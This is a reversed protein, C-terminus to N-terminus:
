TSTGRLRSDTSQPFYRYMSTDEKKPDSPLMSMPTVRQRVEPAPAPLNPVLSYLAEIAARFRLELQRDAEEMEDRDATSTGALPYESAATPPFALSASPMSQSGSAQEAQHSQSVAKKGRKYVPSETDSEDESDEDLAHVQFPEEDTRPSRDGATQSPPVDRSPVPQSSGGPGPASVLQDRPVFGSVQNSSAGEAGRPPGLQSAWQNMLRLM